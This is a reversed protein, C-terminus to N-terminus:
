NERYEQKSQKDEKSKQNKLEKKRKEAEKKLKKAEKKLRKEEEKERQRNAKRLRELDKKDIQLGSDTRFALDRIDDIFESDQKEVKWLNRMRERQIEDQVIRKLTWRRRDSPVDVRDEIDDDMKEGSEMARDHAEVTGSITPLEYIGINIKEVPSKIINGDSLVEELEISVQKSMSPSAHLSGVVDKQEDDPGEPKIVSDRKKKKFSAKIRQFLSKKVEITGEELRAEEFVQVQNLVKILEMGEIPIKNLHARFQKTVKKRVGDAEIEQKTRPVRCRMICCLVIVAVITITVGIFLLHWLKIVGIIPRELYADFQSEIAEGACQHGYSIPILNTVILLTSLFLTLRIIMIYHPFFQRGFQYLHFIHLILNSINDFSSMVRLEVRALSEYPYYRPQHQNNHSYFSCLM